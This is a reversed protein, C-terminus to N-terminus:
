RRKVCVTIAGAEDRPATTITADHGHVVLSTTSRRDGRSSSWVPADPLVGARALGVLEKRTPVRWGRVHWFPRVRCSTMAEAWPREGMIPEAVVLGRHVTVLKREIAIDLQTRDDGAAVPVPVAPPPEPVSVVVPVPITPVVVSKPPAPTPIAAVIAPAHEVLGAGPAPAPAVVAVSEPPASRGVQAAVFLAFMCALALGGLVLGRAQRRDAHIAERQPPQLWPEQFSVVGSVEDPASAPESRSSAADFLDDIADNGPVVPESGHALAAVRLLEGTIRRALATGDVVECELVHHDSTAADDILARLGVDASTGVVRCVVFLAPAHTRRVAEVLRAPARDIGTVVEVHAGHALLDEAATGIENALDSAGLLVVRIGADCTVVIPRTGSL